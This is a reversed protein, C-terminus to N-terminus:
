MQWANSKKMPLHTDCYSQKGISVLKFVLKHLFISPIYQLLNVITYM